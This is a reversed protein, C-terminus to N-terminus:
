RSVPRVCVLIDIPTAASEETNKAAMDNKRQAESELRRDNGHVSDLDKPDSSCARAAFSWRNRIMQLKSAYAAQISDTASTGHIRYYHLQERLVGYRPNFFAFRCWFDWDELGKNSRIDYSIPNERWFSRRFLAATSCQNDEFIDPVPLGKTLWIEGDHNRLIVKQSQPTDVFLRVYPTVCDLEPSM